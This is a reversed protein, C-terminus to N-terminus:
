ESIPAPTPGQAQGSDGPGPTPDADVPRGVVAQIRAFAQARDAAAREYALSFELLVRQADILDSFRASGARYATETTALTQRAMPLLTDGYLEVKRLSDRYAYLATKLDTELGNERGQIQRNAEILRAEVERVRADYRRRWVPLNMSVMGALMDSGGGDMAAMRASADRGYELGLTIDPYASKRALAIAHRERESDHRAASLEPNNERALLIWQEDPYEPLMPFSQASPRDPAAPLRAQAPRGLAANLEAARVGLLDELSRVQDELKGIEIQARSVDSLSAAGARFMTRAVAELRLLLGLNERAVRVAQHGFALEFYARSVQEVLKLRTAEYRQSEARAEEAAMDGGLALKGFWPFMQELAYREGMYEASREVEDLVLAFSARPDPFAREQPIRELAARWRSFAAELDPNHKMAYRVYDDLTAEEPLDADPDTSRRSQTATNADIQRGSLHVPTGGPGPALARASREQQSPGACAAMAIAAATAALAGFVGRMRSGGDPATEKKRKAKRQM